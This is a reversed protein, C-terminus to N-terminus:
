IGVATLRVATGTRISNPIEAIDDVYAALDRLQEESAGGHLEVSYSIATSLGPDRRSRGRGARVRAGPGRRARCGRPAAEGFLDNSVCGAVALDLLHGGNFGLRGGGTALPRDVILTYPGGSGVATPTGFLSRVEVEYGM